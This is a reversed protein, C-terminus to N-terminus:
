SVLKGVIMGGWPDLAMCGGVRTNGTQHAAFREKINFPFGSRDTFAISGALKALLHEHSTAQSLCTNWEDADPAGPPIAVPLVKFRMLFHNGFQITNEGCQQVVQPM